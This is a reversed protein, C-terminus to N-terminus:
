LEDKAREVSEKVAETAESAASAVKEGVSKIKDGADAVAEAATAQAASALSSATALGGSYAASLRSYISESFPPEKGVLLESVISSVVSYQLAAQESAMAAASTVASSADAGVSAANDTASAVYEGAASYLSEYWATPTPAGYVQISIQSVVADWGDAIAEGASAAASAASEYGAAALSSANEGVVSAASAASAANESAVSAASAASESIVSAMSSASGALDTPTPAATMSSFASSASAIFESYRAHAIGIGAYYNHRANELVRVVHEAPTSPTPTALGVAIKASEYQQEAWALGQSLRDGAISEIHAWDVSPMGPVPIATPIINKTTTPKAAGFQKQAAELAMELRSTASAMAASYASTVSALMQEHVPKTTGRMHASVVSLAQSYQRDAQSMAVSYAAEAMSSFSAPFDSGVSSIVSAASEFADEDLIPKRSPVSQAAAGFMAPKISTTTASVPPEEVGEDEVTEDEEADDGKGDAAPTEIADDEIVPTKSVEEIVVPTESAEEVVVPTEIAEEIVPAEGVVVPTEGLIITSAESALDPMDAQTSSADPRSESVLTEAAETESSIIDAAAETAEVIQESAESVLSEAVSEVTEAINTPEVISETPESAVPEADPEAPTDKPPNKAEAAEAAQKMLETNFEASDDLAIIKWNAVQKLRALEKVTTQATKMADEEITASEIHATQLAPHTIILEEFDNYWEEFRKKLLHYKAWDKYTVGDTWAWKMGLKTVALDRINNLISFHEQSAVNVAEQLDTDFTERWSRVMKAAEKIKMGSQRILKVVQEKGEASNINGKVVEGVTTRIGLRIVDLESDVTTKLTKLLSRGTVKAERRVFKKAIEEVRDELEAAGEDAAKVFREQWSKLDEAVMLRAQRRSESEDPDIDEGPVVEDEPADSETDDEILEVEPEEAQNM